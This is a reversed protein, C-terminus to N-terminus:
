IHLGEIDLRSLKAFIPDYGKLLFRILKLFEIGDRTIHM